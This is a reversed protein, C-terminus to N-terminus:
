EVMGHQVWNDQMGRQQLTKCCYLAPHGIHANDPILSWVAIHLVNGRVANGDLLHFFDQKVAV